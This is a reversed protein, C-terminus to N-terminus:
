DSEIATQINDQSLVDMNNIVDSFQSLTQYTSSARDLAKFSKSNINVGQSEFLEDGLVGAENQIHDKFEAVLHSKVEQTFKDMPDDSHMYAVFKAAFYILPVKDLGPVEAINDAIMETKKSFYASGDGNQIDYFFADGDYSLSEMGMNIRNKIKGAVKSGHPTSEVVLEDITRGTFQYTKGQLLMSFQVARLGWMDIRVIPNNGTYQYLNCEVISEICKEMEAAFLPDPSIFRTSVPDYYRAEFYMLESADREKASFGYPQLESNQDNAPAGYPL